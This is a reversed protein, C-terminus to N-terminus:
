PSRREPPAHQARPPRAGRPRPPGAPPRQPYPVRRGERVEPALDEVDLAIVPRQDVPRQRRELGAAHEPERGIVLAEGRPEFPEAVRLFLRDGLVEAIPRRVPCEPNRLSASRAGGVRAPPLHIECRALTRFRERAAPLPKRCGGGEAFTGGTRFDIAGQTASAPDSASVTTAATESWILPRMRSRARKPRATPLASSCISARSSVCALM